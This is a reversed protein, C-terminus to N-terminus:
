DHCEINVATIVVSCARGLSIDSDEKTEFDHINHLKCKPNVTKKGNHDSYIGAYQEINM